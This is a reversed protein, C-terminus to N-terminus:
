RRRPWGRTAARPARGPAPSPTAQRLPPSFRMGSVATVRLSISRMKSIRSRSPMERSATTIGSLGTCGPPTRTSAFPLSSIRTSDSVGSSSHSGSSSAVIRVTISVPQSTACRPRAGAPTSLSAAARVKRELKTEPPPGHCDAITIGELLQLALELAHELPREDGPTSRREVRGDVEEVRARRVHDLGLQGADLRRVDLERHLIVGEDQAALAPERIRRLVRGIVAPLSGFPPEPAHHAKRPRGFTLRLGLEPVAHQRDRERLRALCARAADGDM